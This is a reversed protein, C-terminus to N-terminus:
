PHYSPSCSCQQSLVTWPLVSAGVSTVPLTSGNGVVISTPHSSYPPQSRSLMGVSPTIHYSAGSEIVWDVSPPALAMALSTLDCGRALPSWLTTTPTRPPPLPPLAQNTPRVGYPPIDYAPTQPAGYPLMTLLAPVPPRPASPAQGPWMSIIGTWPNYFSPWGQSGGRGTSAGRTSGGGRM